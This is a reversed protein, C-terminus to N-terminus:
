RPSLLAIKMMTFHQDFGFAEDIGHARCVAFSTCDTLSLVATDYQRFISVADDFLAEDIRVIRLNGTKEAPALSDLFALAVRHNTDYKLRTVTEDIVYDTTLLRERRRKLKTYIAVADAHHQDSKDTLAIWAGTDVFIM